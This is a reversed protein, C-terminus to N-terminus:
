WSVSPQAAWAAAPSPMGGFASALTDVSTSGPTGVASVHGNRHVVTNERVDLLTQVQDELQTLIAQAQDVGVQLAEAYVTARKRLTVIEAIRRKYNSPKQTGDFAAVDEQLTQLKDALSEQAAQQVVTRVEAEVECVVLSIGVQALFAMLPVLRPLHAEPIWYVRGDERFAFGQCESVLYYALADTWDGPCIRGRIAQFANNVDCAIQHTGEICQGNGHEDTWTVLAEYPMDGQENEKHLANIRYRVEHDRTVLATLTFGQKALGAKTKNIARSVQQRDGAYQPIISTPLSYQQALREIEDPLMPQCASGARYFVFAGNTYKQSM